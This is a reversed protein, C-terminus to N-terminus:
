GKVLDEEPALSVVSNSSCYIFKSKNATMSKFPM